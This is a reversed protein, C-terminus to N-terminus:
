DRAMGPPPPHSALWQTVRKVDSAWAAQGASYGTLAAKAADIARPRDAATLWLARALALQAAALKTPAIGKQKGITIAREAAARALTGKGAELLCSSHDALPLTLRPDDTGSAKEILAIVRVRIACADARHQQQELVDALLSLSAAVKMDGSGLARERIALSRRAAALAEAFHGLELEVRGLTLLSSAVDPHDAGLARERIALARKCLELARALRGAKLESVALNTLSQAVLPHDPRLAKERIALAREAAAAEDTLRGQASAISAVTNLTVAISPHNPGFTREKISLSRDIIARAEDYRGAAELRVALNNLLQGVKPHDPGLMENWASLTKQDLALAEDNRGGLWLANALRTAIRGAQLSKGRGRQGISARAAELDAAALDYHAQAVEIDSRMVLYEEREDPGGSRVAAVEASKLLAAAASIDSGALRDIKGLWADVVGQDDHAAAAALAAEDYAVAADPKEQDASLRAKLLLVAALLPPYAIARTREPLPDLVRAADDYKGADRLAEADALVRQIEQVLVHAGPPPAPQAALAIQECGEPGPISEVADIAHDILEDDAGTAFVGLFARVHDIRRDLCGIRAELTATSQEGRVQTAECASIRAAALQEVKGDLTASVRTLTAAAHPRTSAHLAKELRQRADANWVRVAEQGALECRPGSGGLASALWATVAVTTTGLAGLVRRRRRGLGRELRDIVAAMSGFRNEPVPALSRTLVSILWRPPSTVPPTLQGAKKAAVQEAITGGGFPRVGCVAEWLAAAFSFQDAAIGAIPGDHLEPALYAPTGAVASGSGDREEDTIGPSSAVQALGFDAVHPVGHPDILVNDPKFDGHRLGVQHAAALGRGAAVFVSVIERWSRSRQALWQRMTPGDILDMAVFVRADCFGVDHVSVVNPHRLRAMARAEDVLRHQARPDDQRLLKIAVLRDLEPDRAALVVGIGGSGLLREVVYRGLHRPATPEGQPVGTGDVGQNEEVTNPMGPEGTVVADHLTARVGALSM